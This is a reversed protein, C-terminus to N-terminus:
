DDDIAECINDLSQEIGRLANPDRSWSVDFHNHQITRWNVYFGLLRLYAVVEWTGVQEPLEEPVVSIRTVFKGAEAQEQIRRCIGQVQKCNGVVDCAKKQMLDANFKLDIM